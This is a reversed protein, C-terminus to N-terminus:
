NGRRWSVRSSICCNHHLLYPQLLFLSLCICSGCLEQFVSSWYKRLLHFITRLTVPLDKDSASIRAAVLGCYSMLNNMLNHTWYMCSFLLIKMFCNQLRCIYFSKKVLRFFIKWKWNSCLELCRCCFNSINDWDWQLQASVVANVLPCKLM